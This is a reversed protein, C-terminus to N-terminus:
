MEGPARSWMAQGTTILTMRGVVKTHGGVDLHIVTGCTSSKKGGINGRLANDNAARLEASM